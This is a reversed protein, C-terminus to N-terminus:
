TLRTNPRKHEKIFKPISFFNIDHYSTKKAQNGKVINMHGLRMYIEDM